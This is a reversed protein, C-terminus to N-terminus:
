GATTQGDVGDPNVVAIERGEDFLWIRDVPYQRTNYGYDM